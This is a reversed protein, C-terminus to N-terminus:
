SVLKDILSQIGTGAISSLGLFPKSLHSSGEYINIKDVKSLIFSNVKTILSKDFIELKSIINFHEKFSTDDSIIIIKKSMSLINHHAVFDSLEVIGPIDVITPNNSEVFGCNKLNEMSLCGINVSLSNGPYFSTDYKTGCLRNILTTKGSNPPGLIAFDFEKLTIFLDLEEGVAVNKLQDSFGNSHNGPLGRGGKLIFTLKESFIEPKTTVNLPICVTKDEGKGGKQSNKKGQFGNNGIMLTPLNQFSHINSSKQITINGGNGGDGGDPRKFGSRTNKTFSILGKGGDGAKLRIHHYLKLPSSKM